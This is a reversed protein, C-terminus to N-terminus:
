QSIDGRKIVELRKGAKPRHIGNGKRMVPQRGGQAYLGLSACCLFLLIFIYKKLRVM